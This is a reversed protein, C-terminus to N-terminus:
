LCGKQKNVKKYVSVNTNVDPRNKKGNKMPKLRPKKTLLM